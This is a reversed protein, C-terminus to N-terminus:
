ALADAKTAFTGSALHRLGLTSAFSIFTVVLLTCGYTRDPFNPRMGSPRAGGAVVDVLKAAGAEVTGVSAPGLGLLGKQKWSGLAGFFEPGLAGAPRPTSSPRVSPHISAALPISGSYLAKCARAQVM